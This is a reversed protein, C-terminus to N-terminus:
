TFLIEAERFEISYKQIELIDYEAYLYAICNNVGLKIDLLLFFVCVWYWRRNEVLPKWHRAFLTNYYIFLVSFENKV